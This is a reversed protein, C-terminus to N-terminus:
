GYAILGDEQYLRYIIMEVPMGSWLMDEDGDTLQVKLPDNV